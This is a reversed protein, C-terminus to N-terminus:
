QFPSNTDMNDLLPKPSNFILIQRGRFREDNRLVAIAERAQERKVMIAYYVSGERTSWIANENLVDKILRHLPQDSGSVNAIAVFESGNENKM